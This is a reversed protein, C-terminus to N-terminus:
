PLTDVANNHPAWRCLARADISVRYVGFSYMLLQVSLDSLESQALGPSAHVLLLGLLPLVCRYGSCRGM